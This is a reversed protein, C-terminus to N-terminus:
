RGGSEGNREVVNDSNNSGSRLHRRARLPSSRIQAAAGAFRDRRAVVNQDQGIASDARSFRRNRAQQRRGAHVVMQYALSGARAARQDHLAAVRPFDM